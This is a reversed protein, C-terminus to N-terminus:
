KTCLIEHEQVWRTEQQTQIKYLVGEVVQEWVDIIEGDEYRHKIRKQIDDVIEINFRKAKPVRVKEGIKHKPNFTIYEVEEVEENSSIVVRPFAIKAM